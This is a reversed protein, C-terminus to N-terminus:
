PLFSRILVRLAYMLPDWVSNISSMIKKFVTSKNKVM